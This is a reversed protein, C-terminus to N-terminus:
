SRDNEGGCCMVLISVTPASAISIAPNPSAGAAWELAEDSIEAFTASTENVSPADTEPGM